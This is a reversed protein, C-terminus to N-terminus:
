SCVASYDALYGSCSMRRVAVHMIAANRSQMLANTKETLMIEVLKENWDTVSDARVVGPLFIMSAIFAVTQWDQIHRTM